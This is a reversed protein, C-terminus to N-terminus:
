QAKFQKYEEIDSDESDSSYQAGSSLDSNGNGGLLAGRRALFGAANGYGTYKVM